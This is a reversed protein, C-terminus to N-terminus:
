RTIGAASPLAESSVMSSEVQMGQKPRIASLAM